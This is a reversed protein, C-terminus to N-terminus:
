IENNSIESVLKQIKLIQLLMSKDIKKDKNRDLAEKVLGFKERLEDQEELNIASSLKTKLRRIENELYLKLSIHKDAYSTLFLSILKKQEKLLTNNYKKNFNKFFINYSIKDVPKLLSTEKEQSVMTSILKNELLVKNKISLEKNFIQSITALNRYNPVFHNFVGKGIRKNILNILRTQENFLEKENVSKERHSRAEFILKEANRPSVNQTDYIAKYSNLDKQLNTGKKFFKRLITEIIKKKKSDQAVIAHTLEKILAEYLFATNRKKNHKFKSIKM